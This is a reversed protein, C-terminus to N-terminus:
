KESLFQLTNIKLCIFKQVFLVNQYTFNIRNEFRLFIALVFINRDRLEGKSFRMKHEGIADCGVELSKYNFQL